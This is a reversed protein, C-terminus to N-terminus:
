KEPEFKARLAEYRLRDRELKEAALMAKEMAKRAEAQGALENKRAAKFMAYFQAATWKSQPVLAVQVGKREVVEVGPMDKFAEANRKVSCIVGASNIRLPLNAKLYDVTFMDLALQDQAFIAKTDACNQLSTKWARLNANFGRLEGDVNLIAARRADKYAYAGTVTAHKAQKAQRNETAKKEFRNVAAINETAINETQKM